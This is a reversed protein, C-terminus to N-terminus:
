APKLNAILTQTSTIQLEWHALEVISKHIGSFVPAFIVLVVNELKM